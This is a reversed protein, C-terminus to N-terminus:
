SVGYTTNPSALHILFCLLNVFLAAGEVLFMTVVIAGETQVQPSGISVIRGLNKLFIFHLLRLLFFSHATNSRHLELCTQSGRRWSDAMKRYLTAVSHVKCVAQLWITLAWGDITLTSHTQHIGKSNKLLMCGWVEVLLCHFHWYDSQINFQLHHFDMLNENPERALFLFTTKAQTFMCFTSCVQGLEQTKWGCTSHKFKHRSGVEQSLYYLPCPKSHGAVRNVAWGKGDKGCHDEGAPSHGVVLLFFLVSACRLCTQM